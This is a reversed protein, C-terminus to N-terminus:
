NLQIVSQKNKSKWFKIQSDYGFSVLNGGKLYLLSRPFSKHGFLNSILSGNGFDVVAISMNEGCAVISNGDNMLRIDWICFNVCNVVKIQEQNEWNWLILNKDDGGSIILNQDESFKAISNVQNKHGKLTCFCEFRKINWIKINNDASCSAIISEQQLAIVQFVGNKHGMLTGQPTDSTSDFAWIKISNDFSCSSYFKPNLQQLNMIYDTHATFSKFNESDEIDWFKIQMDAGGTIVITDHYHLISMVSKSHATFENIIQNLLRDYILIKNGPNGTGFALTQKDIECGCLIPELSRSYTKYNIIRKSNWIQINQDINEQENDIQENQVEHIKM